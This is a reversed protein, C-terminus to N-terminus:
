KKFFAGFGNNKRSFNRKKLPFYRQSESQNQYLFVTKLTTKLNKLPLFLFRPCFPANPLDNQIRRLNPILDVKAKTTINYKPVILADDGVFLDHEFIPPRAQLSNKRKL